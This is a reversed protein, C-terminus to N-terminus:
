TVPAPARRRRGSSRPAATLRLVWPTRYSCTSTRRSATGCGNSPTRWRRPDTRTRSRRWHQGSAPPTTLPRAVTAAQRTSCLRPRPRRPLCTDASTSTRASVTEVASAQSRAADDPHVELARTVSNGAAASPGALNMAAVDDTGPLVIQQGPSDLVDCLLELRVTVGEVERYWRWTDQDTRTTFDAARLTRELWGFDMDDRDYVVGVQVFVDIDVTGQHPVPTPVTLLDANLGGIVTIEDRHEGLHLVFLALAREAFTRAERTREM